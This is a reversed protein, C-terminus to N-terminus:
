AAPGLSSVWDEFWDRRIRIQGNPLKRFQPFRGSEAGASSWKYATDRTINLEECLDNISMWGHPEINTRRAMDPGKRWQSRNDAGM